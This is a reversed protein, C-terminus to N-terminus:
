RSSVWGCWGCYGVLRVVSSRRFSFSVVVVVRLFVVWWGSCGRCSVEWLSCVKRM